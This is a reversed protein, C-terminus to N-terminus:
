WTTESKQFGDWDLLGCVVPLGTKSETYIKLPTSTVPTGVNAMLSLTVGHNIENFRDKGKDVIQITKRDQPM